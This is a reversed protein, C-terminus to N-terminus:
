SEVQTKEQQLNTQVKRAKMGKVIAVGLVQKRLLSAQEQM